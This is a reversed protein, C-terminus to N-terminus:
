LRNPTKTDGGGSEGDHVRDRSPSGRSVARATTVAAVCVIILLILVLRVGAFLVVVLVILGIRAVTKMTGCKTEAVRETIRLVARM